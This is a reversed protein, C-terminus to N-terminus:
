MKVGRYITKLNWAEIIRAVNEMRSVMPIFYINSFKWSHWRYSEFFTMSVKRNSLIKVYYGTVWNRHMEETLCLPAMRIPMICFFLLWIYKSILGVIPVPELETFVFTPRSENSYTKNLQVLEELEVSNDHSLASYLPFFKEEAFSGLEAKSQRCYQSWADRSIPFM